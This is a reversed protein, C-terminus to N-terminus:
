FIKGTFQDHFLDREDNNHSITTNLNKFNDDNEIFFDNIEIADNLFSAAIEVM